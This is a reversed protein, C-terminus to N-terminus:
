KGGERYEVLWVHVEDLEYRDPNSMIGKEHNTGKHNCEFRGQKPKVKQGCLPCEFELRKSHRRSLTM